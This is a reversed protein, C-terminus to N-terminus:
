RRTSVHVVVRLVNMTCCHFMKLQMCLCCNGEERAASHAEGFHQMPACLRGDFEDAGLLM